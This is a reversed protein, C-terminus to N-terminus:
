KILKKKIVRLYTVFQNMCKLNNATVEQFNKSRYASEVDLIIIDWKGDPHIILEFPDDHPLAIGHANAKQICNVIKRRIEILEEDRTLELFLKDIKPRPRNRRHGGMLYMALLKGYLESGDAKLDRVLVGEDTKLVEAVVPLGASKMMAWNDFYNEDYAREVYSQKRSFWRCSKARVLYKEPFGLSLPKRRTIIKTQEKGDFTTVRLRERMIYIIDTRDLIILNYSLIFSPISLILIPTLM